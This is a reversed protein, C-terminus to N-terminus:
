DGLLKSGIEVDDPNVFAENIMRIANESLDSMYCVHKVAGSEPPGAFADDEQLTRQIEFVVESSPNLLGLNPYIRRFNAELFPFHTCGLIVKQIKNSQIFDDLYYKLTMDMIEHDVIGEEILPVLAPCALSFLKIDKNRSTIINAYAGSKVTARTGLVGIATGRDEEYAIRKAIPEIVGIIPIDPHRRRLPELCTASVSNCAIVILKVDHEVLFDSIENSFRRLMDVSKSGYPAHATDGFYVISENPLMSQLAKVCSLGGVGSDFLGIPRNDM